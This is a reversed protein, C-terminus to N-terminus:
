QCMRDIYLIIVSQIFFGRRGQGVQVSSIAIRVHGGNFFWRYGDNAEASLAKDCHFVEEFLAETNCAELSLVVDATYPMVRRLM